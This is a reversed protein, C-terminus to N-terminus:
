EEDIDGEQIAGANLYIEIYEVSDADPDDSPIEVRISEPLVRKLIEVAEAKNGAKIRACMGIPGVTSNGLDFHFEEPGEQAQEVNGAKARVGM